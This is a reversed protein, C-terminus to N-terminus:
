PITAPYVGCEIASTAEALWNALSCGPAADYNKGPQRTVANVVLANLPPLGRGQCWEAIERLYPGAARSIVPNGALACLDGYSILCQPVSSTHAPRPVCVARQHALLANALSIAVPTM